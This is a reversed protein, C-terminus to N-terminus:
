HLTGDESPPSLVAALAIKEDETLLDSSFDSNAIIDIIKIFKNTFLEALTISERVGSSTLKVSVTPEDQVTTDTVIIEFKAM